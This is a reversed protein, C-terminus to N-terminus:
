TSCTDRLSIPDSAFEHAAIDESGFSLQNVFTVANAYQHLSAQFLSYVEGRALSAEAHDPIWTKFMAIASKRLLSKRKELESRWDQAGTNNNETM